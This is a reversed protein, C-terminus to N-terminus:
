SVGYAVRTSEFLIDVIKLRGCDVLETIPAGELNKMKRGIGLV